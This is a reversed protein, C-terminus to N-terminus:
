VTKEKALNNAPFVSTTIKLKKNFNKFFKKYFKKCQSNNFYGGKQHLM